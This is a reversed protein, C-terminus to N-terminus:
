LLAGAATVVMAFDSRPMAAASMRPTVTGDIEAAVLRSDRGLDRGDFVVGVTRRANRQQVIGVALLAVDKMRHAQFNAHRHLVAFPRVNKGAIRERQSVDGGPVM